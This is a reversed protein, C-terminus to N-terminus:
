FVNLKIVKLVEKLNNKIKIACTTSKKPFHGYPHELYHEWFHGLIIFFLM